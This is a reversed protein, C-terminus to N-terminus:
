IGSWIQSIGTFNPQFVRLLECTIVIEKQPDFIVGFPGEYSNKQIHGIRTLFKELTCWLRDVGPQM